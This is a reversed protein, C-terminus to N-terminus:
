FGIASVKRELDKPKLITQIYKDKHKDSLDKSLVPLEYNPNIGHKKAYEEIGILDVTQRKPLGLQSRVRDKLEREIKLSLFIENLKRLYTKKRSLFFNRAVQMTITSGGQRREGTRALTIVARLLGKYDVGPHHFFRDDEASIFAQVLTPPFAHYELPIRKKEGYQAILKHDSTYIRLPVQYQVSKLEDVADLKPTLYLYAGTFGIVTCAAGLIFLKVFFKFLFLLVKM